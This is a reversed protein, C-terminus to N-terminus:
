KLEITVTKLQGSFKFPMEYEESVPTGTDFGIDLTEDLTVRNPISKEVRGKGIQKDNAFLTVDAGAFPKDSDTKYVAKLQVEGTPIVKDSKIEFREVGALNYHYVLKGDKVYLGYGAFRGGQTFIMGDTSGEAIIVNAIIEHSRHKLDPSAGEPLRLLNPYTFTTRGQTLSPRNNINLRETKRGDLPLVNYRAAEAFFLKVMEDLKEPNEKALNNAQSFDEEINYLEWPMNLLDIPPSESLWPEGRLASAMWGDHYIGQNGLMEFYQTTHRDEAKADDFTYAMSVGEIPKQAIGNIQSPPEIGIVELLTPAIDIVHHFQDRIEGQAKIKKPWSIALGNRTGGFHSAIQKTWQFPSDMAHAWAAPFHNYHKDSGIEDIAALTKDFPEPIANFFTMENLLGNLGGEASSGNDGAMYIVITNEKEGMEDITDLLRGIEHDTHATFAAFVEMMRSFVKRKDEPLSDWAALSEPRETLKTNAPIIGMKKQREFTEKRYVDWGSDFQGKFKNIWEEPVQHPAHTAGTAFYVFFPRQPAVAKSARMMRIAKDAIDTTFHYPSGDENTEPPEIRKKGEVLAPHFQDTDGGVFGYFYDFGLASSWRDFPGVISTEWDPVNHNKGFWANMYGYERLIEAFTGATPPIIGSYGPFGTGAEGIVGSAVSHHNRGTLLAARTPSCLATTHFRNYRLGNDAVRDMSPTPIGGGFTGMQGYGCDDILVLLINPANEIGFNQPIKLEPKVAVSDKYTLGIKGKFAEEPRPLQEQATGTNQLGLIVVTAILTRSVCNM